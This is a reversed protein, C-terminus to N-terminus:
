TLSHIFRRKPQTKYTNVHFNIQHRAQELKPPNSLRWLTGIQTGDLVDVVVQIRSTDTKNREFQREVIECVLSAFAVSTAVFFISDFGNKM